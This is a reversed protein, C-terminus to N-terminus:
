RGGYIGEWETRTLHKKLSFRSDLWAGQVDLRTEEMGAIVDRFQEMDADHRLSLEALDAYRNEYAAFLVREVSKMEELIEAIQGQRQPDDVARSIEKEGPIFSLETAASGGFLLMYMMVWFM